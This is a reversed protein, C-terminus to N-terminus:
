NAEYVDDPISVSDLSIGEAIIFFQRRRRFSHIYAEPPISQGLLFGQQAPVDIGL